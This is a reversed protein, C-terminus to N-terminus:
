SPIKVPLITPIGSPCQSTASYCSPNAAIMPPCNANPGYVAVCGPNQGGASTSRLPTPIGVTITYTYPSTVATCSTFGHPFGPFNPTWSCGYLLNNDVINLNLRTNIDALNSCPPNPSSDNSQTVGCYTGTNNLYTTEAMDMLTLNYIAAQAIGTQVMSTYTPIAIAALTGIIVMAVTIEILSFGKKDKNIQINM